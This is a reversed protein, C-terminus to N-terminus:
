REQRMKRSALAAASAAALATAATALAAPLKDDATKPFSRGSGTNIHYSSGTGGRYASYNSGGNHNASASADKGAGEGPAGDADTGKGDTQGQDNDPNDDEAHHAPNSPDDPNVPQASKPAVTYPADPDEGSNVAEYGEPVYDSMNKSWHGGTVSVKTPSTAATADPDQLVTGELNYTGQTANVANPLGSSSTLSSNTGLADVKSGEGFTVTNDKAVSNPDGADYYNFLVVSQPAADDGTGDNSQAQVTSGTIDIKVNQCREVVITGFANGPGPIGTSKLVSGDEISIVSNSSGASSSPGKLYLAAYGSVDSDAITMNVPNFVIIGYGAEPASITSAVITVDTTEPVNSGITITQSVDSDAITMNVPNFVIIGYGAEPASITSAVITVDTTEPVNSGITITQPNGAGTTTVTADAIRVTKYGKYTYLARGYSDPNTVTINKLVFDATADQTEGGSLAVGYSHVTLTHGNGNLTVTKDLWLSVYMGNQAFAPADYDHLLNITSGTPATTAAEQLTTYTTTSGDATVVEAVPDTTPVADSESAADAQTTTKSESSNTDSATQTAAPTSATNDHAGNSQAEAKSSIASKVGDSSNGVGNGNGTEAPFDNEQIASKAETSTEEAGATEMHILPVGLFALFVSATVAAVKAGVGM